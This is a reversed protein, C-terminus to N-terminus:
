EHEVEPNTSQLANRAIKAAYPEDFKSTVEAGEDFSSIQKLAQNSTDLANTYWELLKLMDAVTWAEFVFYRETGKLKLIRELEQKPIM